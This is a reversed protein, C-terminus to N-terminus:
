KFIKYVASAGVLGYVIKSGTAGLFSAITFGTLAYIGWALGGVILAWNAWKGWQMKAM